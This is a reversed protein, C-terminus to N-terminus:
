FRMTGRTFIEVAKMVVGEALIGWKTSSSEKSNRKEAAEGLTRAEEARSRQFEKKDDDTFGRAIVDCLAKADKLAMSIGQGGPGYPHAADGILITRNSYWRGPPKGNYVPGFALMADADKTYLDYKSRLEPRWREARRALEAEVSARTARKADAEPMRIHTWMFISNKTAAENVKGCSAIGVQHGPYSHLTMEIKTEDETIFGVGLYGAYTKTSSQGPNLIHRLTSGVGDAGVLLTGNAKENSESTVEIGTVTETVSAVKFGTLVPIGLARARKMLQEHLALRTVMIASTDHERASFSASLGGLRMDVRKTDEGISAVKMLRLIRVGEASIRVGSTPGDFRQRSELVQSKINQGALMIALSLGAVGAGVIIVNENNM